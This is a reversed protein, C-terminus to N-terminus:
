RHGFLMFLAVAITLLWVVVFWPFAITTPPPNMAEHIKLMFDMAELSEHRRLDRVAADHDDAPRQCGCRVHELIREQLFPPQDEFNRGEVVVDRLQTFEHKECKEWIWTEGAKPTRVRQGM